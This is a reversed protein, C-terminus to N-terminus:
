LLLVYKGCQMCSPNIVESVFFFVSFINCYHSYPKILISLLRIDLASDFSQMNVFKIVEGTEM